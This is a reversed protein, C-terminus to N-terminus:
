RWPVPADGFIGQFFTLYGAETLPGPDLDHRQSSLSQSAKGRDPNESPIEFEVTHPKGFEAGYVVKGDPSKYM